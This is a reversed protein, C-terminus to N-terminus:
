SKEKKLLEMLVLKENQAQLLMEETIEKKGYLYDEYRSISQFTAKAIGRQELFPGM